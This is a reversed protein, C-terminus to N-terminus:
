KDHTEIVTVAFPSLTIKTGHIQGRKAPGDETSADITWTEGNIRSGFDVCTPANNKNIVLLKKHKHKHSHIAQVHPPLTVLSNERELEPDPQHPATSVNTQAFLDGAEFHDILMALGHFRANGEGTTWNLMSVSPYQNDKIDWEPIPPSGALQSCGLVDYGMIALNAYIYSFYANAASWYIRPPDPPNKDGDGPLIVGIEDVDIKTHPSMKNKLDMIQRAEVFFQDALGFFQNYTNPDTRSTSSAYFHFSFWTIPLVQPDHNKEDLFYEIWDLERGELALGVFEINHQQDAVKRIQNVIADYQTTYQKVDLGHCGEPENYVEWHTLPYHRGSTHFVGLEDTFGGKMMWSLLRGYYEAILQTTNPNPGGRPYNWDVDNPDTPYSWDATNYMWTPQTSFNPVVDKGNHFTAKM